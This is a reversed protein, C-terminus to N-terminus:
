KREYWGPVPTNGPGFVLTAGQNSSLEFTAAIRYSQYNNYVVYGYLNGKPDKVSCINAFYPALGGSTACPPYGSTGPYNNDSIGYWTTPDGPYNGNDSYYNALANDIQHLDALRRADRGKARASNLSVLVVSALLGIVSVVVLLEILTFGKQNKTKM